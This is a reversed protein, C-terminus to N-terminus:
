YSSATEGAQARYADRVPLETRRILERVSMPRHAKAVLDHFAERVLPNNDLFRNFLADAYRHHVMEGMFAGTKDNILPFDEGDLAPLLMPEVVSYEFELRRVEEKLEQEYVMAETMELGATM